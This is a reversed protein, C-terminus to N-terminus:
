RGVGARQLVDVPIPRAGDVFFQVGAVTVLPGMVRAMVDLGDKGFWERVYPPVGRPASCVRRSM